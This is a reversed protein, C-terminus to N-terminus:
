QNFMYLKLEILNRTESFFFSKIMKKQLIMNLDIDQTTAMKIKQDVVM